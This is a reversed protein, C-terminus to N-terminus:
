VEKGRETAHASVSFHRLKREMNQPMLSKKYIIILFICTRVSAYAIEIIWNNPLTTLYAQPHNAAVVANLLTVVNVKKLYRKFKM